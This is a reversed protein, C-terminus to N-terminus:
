LYPLHHPPQQYYVMEYSTIKIVSHYHTNYWWEKLPLWKCWDQPENGCMCRFYIELCRNVVETQADTQPHYASLVYFQTGHLRFLAQWFNSM